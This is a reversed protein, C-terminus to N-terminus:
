LGAGGARILRSRERARAREDGRARRVPVINGMVAWGAEKLGSGVAESEPAGVGAAKTDPSTGCRQPAGARLTRCTGSRSRGTRRACRPVSAPPSSKVM